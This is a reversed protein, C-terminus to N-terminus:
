SCTEERVNMTELILVLVLMATFCTLNLIYAIVEYNRVMKRKAYAILAPAISIISAVFAVIILNNSHLHWRPNCM